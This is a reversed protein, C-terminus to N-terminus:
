WGGLRAWPVVVIAAVVCVVVVGLLLWEYRTM